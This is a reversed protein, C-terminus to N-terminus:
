LAIPTGPPPCALEVTNDRESIERVKDRPDVEVTVSRMCVPGVFRVGRSERSQLTGISRVDVEAGDVRLRVEVKRAPATGTNRVQVGYLRTDDTPGPEVSLTGRPHLNALRGPQRCTPSRKVTRQIPKGAADLWEFTVSVRYSTAPQLADIKQRYAFQKVGPQAAHWANLGPASVRRWVGRGVREGLQYQMRMGQGTPIQAMSGRFLAFRRSAQKGTSCELLQVGTAAALPDAKAAAAPREDFAAVAVAAAALVAVVSVRGTM